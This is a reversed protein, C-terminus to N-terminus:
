ELINDDPAQVMHTKYPSGPNFADAHELNHGNPKEEKACFSSGDHHFSFPKAVRTDPREGEQHSSLIKKKTHHAWLSVMDLVQAKM